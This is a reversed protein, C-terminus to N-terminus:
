VSRRGRRRLRVGLCILAGLGLLALSTPEPAPTPPGLGSSGAPMVIVDTPNNLVAGGVSTPNLTFVDSTGDLNASVLTNGLYNTIIVRGSTPDYVVGGPENLGGPSVGALQHLWSGVIQGNQYSLQYSNVSNQYFGTDILLPPNAGNSPGFALQAPANLHTVSDTTGSVIARGVTDGNTVDYQRIQSGNSQSSENVYLKGDFGFVLGTPGELHAATLGNTPLTAYVTLTQAVTDYREIANDYFSAIYLYRPNNPDFAIGNPYELTQQGVTHAVFTGLFAGTSGNYEVISGTGLSSVYLNGDPGYTMGNPVSLAGNGGSTFTSLTNTAEDYRLISNTGVNAILLDASASRALLSFGLLAIVLPIPRRNM